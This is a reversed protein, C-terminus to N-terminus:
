ENELISSATLAYETLVRVAALYADVPICEDPSHVSGHGAPLLDAPRVGVGPVTLGISFARPLCKAYTGGGSYYPKAAADGTLRRYAALLAAVAPDADGLDFGDYADDILLEWEDDGVTELLIPGLIQWSTASGFRIDESLFLRSDRVRVMGTVATRRGFPGDEGAIGLTGGFPDSLYLAATALVGREDVALADSSSLLECLVAAANRSGEPHSAHAARGRALLRIKGEEPLPTLTLDERGAVLTSLSALLGESYALTATARDLVVNYASGGDLDLVESLFPPSVLWGQARGKEGLSLPADNDPVLSLDPVPHTRTFRTVDRM